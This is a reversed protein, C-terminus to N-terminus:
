SEYKSSKSNRSRSIIKNNEIQEEINKKNSQKEKM